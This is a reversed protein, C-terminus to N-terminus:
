SRPPTTATARSRDRPGMLGVANGDPDTVVAYRAGFFADYPPQQGAFGASTIAAYTEDVADASEFHFGLVAGTRDAPWGEDWRRAFAVSDLDFHLGGEVDINRHHQDWDPTTPAVNVGLRRYFDVTADMDRVVLNVQNFVPEPNAM